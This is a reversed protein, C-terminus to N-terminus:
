KSPTFTITVPRDESTFRGGDPWCLETLFVSYVAAGGRTVKYTKSMSPMGSVITSTTDFGAKVLMGDKWGSPADPGRTLNKYTVTVTFDDVQDKGPQKTALDIAPTSLDATFLSYYKCCGTDVLAQNIKFPATGDVKVDFDLEYYENYLLGHFSNTYSTMSGSSGAVKTLAIQIPTSATYRGAGNANAVVLLLSEGNAVLDDPKALEYNGARTRTVLTRSSGKVRYISLQAEGDPDKFAFSLKTDKPWAQFRVLYYAASLSPASWNFTPGTTVDSSFAFQERLQSLVGGFDPFAGPLTSETYAAVFNRWHESLMGTLVASAGEVPWRLSEALIGQARLSSGKLINGVVAAGGAHDELYRLFMSAGYGHTRVSAMEGPQYELGHQTLFAYNDQRVTDPVTDSQGTIVHEFWTSAAEDFWLWSGPFKAVRYAGRPDYLDQLVHFLEHGATAKFDDSVTADPLKNANLTISWYNKGLISPEQEGWTDAKDGTLPTIVVRLPWRTRASWSLGLDELKKYSAELSQGIARVKDEMSSDGRPYFILFHSAATVHQLYSAGVWFGVEQGTAMQNSALSASLRQAALGKASPASSTAGEAAPLTVRASNGDAVAELFEIGTGHVSPGSNMAVLMQTGAPAAQRLPIKVTVAAGLETPLGRLTFVDSIQTSGGPNTDEPKALVITTAGAFAGAPIQVEMGGGSVTGGAAGISASTLIPYAGSCSIALNAQSSVGNSRVSVRYVGPVIDSPVQINVQYVGPFGPMLGSFSVPVERESMYAHTTTVTNNVPGWQGNDGGPRGAAVPPTVEGLGTLMLVLYEKPVAPNTARVVSFDAAHLVYPEGTGSADVTFIAPSTAQVTASVAASAGKATKLQVQVTGAAIGFPMQFNVQGPSVFYIPAMVSSKGPATIEVSVGAITTPLPRQDAYAVGAALNQGFAAAM